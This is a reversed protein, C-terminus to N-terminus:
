ASLASEIRAPGYCADLTKLAVEKTKFIHDGPIVASLGSKEFAALVQRKLSSFYLSVKRERLQEVLARLKEEGSVDLDNIGSGIVLVAQAQPFRELAQLV